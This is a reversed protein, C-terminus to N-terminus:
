YACEDCSFIVGDHESRVHHILVLKSSGKYDCKLCDYRIGEHKALTHVKLYGRTSTKFDCMKGTTAFAKM